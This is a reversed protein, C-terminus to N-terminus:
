FVNLELIAAAHTADVSNKWFTLLHILWAHHLYLTLLFFSCYYNLPVNFIYVISQNIEFYNTCFTSRTAVIQSLKVYNACKIGFHCWRIWGWGRFWKTWLSFYLIINWIVSISKFCGIFLYKWGSLKCFNISDEFVCSQHCVSSIHHFNFMQLLNQTDKLSWAQLSYIEHQVEVTEGHVGM